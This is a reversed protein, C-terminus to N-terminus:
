EKTECAASDVMRLTFLSAELAHLRNRKQGEPAYVFAEAVILRQASSDAIAHSVFPGGMADGHMEWLGRSVIVVKGHERIARESVSETVTQMYMEDTEGQMNRKMVSDRSVALSKSGIPVCYICLNKMGGISNNSFWLFQEGKKSSRLNSPVLMRVGFMKEIQKTAEVNHKRSLLAIEVNMEKRTLLERLKPGLSRMEQRLAELSSANIRVIMQNRAWVNKEYSMKVREKQMSDIQVIVINRALRTISNLDKQMCISVDFSPEAQPLGEVDATLASGVVDATDGVLLVEYPRGSGKPTLEKRSCGVMIAVALCLMVCRVVNTM